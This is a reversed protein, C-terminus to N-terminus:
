ECGMTTMLWKTLSSLITIKFIWWIIYLWWYRKILYLTYETISMDKTQLVSETEESNEDSM